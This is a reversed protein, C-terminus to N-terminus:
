NEYPIMAMKDLENEDDICFDLNFLHDHTRIVSYIRDNILAFAKIRREDLDGPFRLCDKKLAHIMRERAVGLSRGCKSRIYTVDGKKELNELDLYRIFYEVTEKFSDSQFYKSKM